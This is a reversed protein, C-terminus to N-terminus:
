VALYNKRRIIRWAIFLILMGVILFLIYPGISAARNSRVVLKLPEITTTAATSRGDNLLVQANNLTVIAPGVSRARFVLTLIEGEPESYGSPILGALPLRGVPVIAPQFDRIWLSIILFENPAAVLELKDNPWVVEGELANVSQGETKLGMEVTFNEGVVPRGTITFNITAAQARSSFVLFSFSFAFLTLRLISIVSTKLKENEM